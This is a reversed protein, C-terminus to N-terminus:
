PNLPHYQNDVALDVKRMGSLGYLKMMDLASRDGFPRQPVQVWLNASDESFPFITLTAAHIRNILYAREQVEDGKPEQTGLRIRNYARGGDANTIGLLAPQDKTAVRWADLIRIAEAFLQAQANPSASDPMKLIRLYRIVQLINASCVASVLPASPLDSHPYQNPYQGPTSPHTVPQIEVAPMQPM